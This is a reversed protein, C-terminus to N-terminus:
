GGWSWPVTGGPHSWPAFVGEGMAKYQERIEYRVKVFASDKGDPVLKSDTLFDLFTECLRLQDGSSMSEGKPGLDSDTSQDLYCGILKKMALDLWNALREAVGYDPGGLISHSEVPQWETTIADGSVESSRTMLAENTWRWTSENGTVWPEENDAMLQNLYVLLDYVDCRRFRNKRSAAFENVAWAYHQAKMLGRLAVGLPGTLDPGIEEEAPQPTPEPQSGSIVERILAVLEEKTMEM